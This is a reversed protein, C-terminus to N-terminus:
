LLRTNNDDLINYVGSESRTYIWLLENKRSFKIELKDFTGLSRIRMIIKREVDSLEETRDPAINLFGNNM